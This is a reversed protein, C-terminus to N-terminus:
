GSHGDPESRLDLWASVLGIGVAAAFSVFLPWGLEIASVLLAVSSVNILVTLLLVRAKCIRDTTRGWLPAVIAGTM